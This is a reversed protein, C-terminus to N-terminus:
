DQFLAAAFFGSLVRRAIAARWSRRLSAVYNEYAADGFIQRLAWWLQGASIKASGLWRRM